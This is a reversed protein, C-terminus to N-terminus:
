VNVNEELDLDASVLFFHSALACLNNPDVM